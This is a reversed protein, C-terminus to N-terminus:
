ALEGDCDDWVRHNAAADDRADDLDTSEATLVTGCEQCTFRFENM